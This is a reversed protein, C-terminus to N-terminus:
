PAASSIATMWLWDNGDGRCEDMALIALEPDIAIGPPIDAETRPTQRIYEITHTISFRNRIAETVGPVIRDHVEVLIDTTALRPCVDPRLLEMEGGDVDMVLLGRGSSGLAAALDEPGCHGNLTIRDGIGDQSAIKHLAGHLSRDAEFAIIRSDPSRFAFGCAYFGEAAGVDVIVPYKSRCIQEIIESLEKEYSGILKQTFYSGRWEPIYKMGEFPGSFVVGGSLRWIGPMARRRANALTRIRLRSANFRNRWEADTVYWIANKLSSPCWRSLTAKLTM